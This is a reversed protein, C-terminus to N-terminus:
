RWNGKDIEFYDMLDHIFNKLESSRSCTLFIFSDKSYKHKNNELHLKAEKETLFIPDHKVEELRYYCKELDNVTRNDDESKNELFDEESEYQEGDKDIYVFGDNTYFSDIGYIRKKSIIVYYYPAATIRNDQSAMETLVKKINEISM